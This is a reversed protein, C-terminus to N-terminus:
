KQRWGALETIPIRLVKIGEGQLISEMVEAGKPNMSHIVVLAPKWPLGVICKALDRGTIERPYPEYVYTELDHDLFIVDFENMELQDLAHLANSSYTCATKLVGSAYLADKRCPFDDVVLVRAPSEIVVPPKHAM